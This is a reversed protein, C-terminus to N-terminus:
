ILRLIKFYVLGSVFFLVSLFVLSILKFRYDFLLLIKYVGLGWDNVFVVFDVLDEGICM